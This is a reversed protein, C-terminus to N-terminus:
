PPKPLRGARGEGTFPSPSAFPESFGPIEFPIGESATAVGKVESAEGEGNVPSPPAPSDRAAGTLSSWVEKDWGEWDASCPSPARRRKKWRMARGASRAELPAAGEIFSPALGTMATARLREASSRRASLM